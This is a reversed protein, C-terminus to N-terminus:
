IGVGNRHAGAETERCRIWLPTIADVPGDFLGIQADPRFLRNFDEPSFAKRLRGVYTAHFLNLYHAIDYDHADARRQVSPASAREDGDDGDGTDGFPADSEEPLLVITGDAARYFRIRMNIRWATRGANLMAEYPAERLRRRSRLYAEPSKSLRAPTAVDAATLSRARLAAVTQLYVRHLGEVDGVLVHALAEHLFREGFPEARSSRLAGGRVIVQGDYTLLAYNKVEHVFMARYRGEYELRIGDPLLAAVEEVLARERDADWDSPVAFFVGDTDAELLAMGRERLAEVVDGLIERGHRTIADAGPRDAFLAMSGAGMYGYASNILIKMAAQMAHHRHAEASDPAAARAADKHRLRLDTLRDVLYLLVGLRDCEPGISFARMISPYMSAIDAKVVHQAVGGAFLHTAGGAHQGLVAASDASQRPLAAGAHLYARIMMPELIGMAPGASALSEYRRPAMAALAFPAGLLRTSLGDVETVDDLAYRRVSDPDRLYTSFVEAGAIYTREPAAVGFYRAAAKLGHGTMDRASFDHRRVADLTDILERGALSFRFRKRRRFAVREEYRRLLPPGGDRGMDLPVGLLEAREYLFPLDFGFLNHNEIIDPDRERVLECLDAILMAEEAETRAEFVTALGLSDRVAVMFIRGRDARLSTTELDFQLRHLAAYELDRFYVRGTAMLYQEVPGVWYYDDEVDYLSTAPRGLRKSAGALIASELSRGDHSSILYRYSGHPGDLERCGFGGRGTGNADYGGQSIDDLTAAFLWPRFRERSLLVGAETRRWVLARGARDAWVSVIGPTPDWGFLWSDGPDPATIDM